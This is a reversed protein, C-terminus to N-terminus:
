QIKVSFTAAESRNLPEIENKVVAKKFAGLQYKTMSINNKSM